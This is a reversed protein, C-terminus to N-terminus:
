KERLTIEATGEHTGSMIGSVEFRGDDILVKEIDRHYEHRKFKFPDHATSPDKNYMYEHGNMVLHM